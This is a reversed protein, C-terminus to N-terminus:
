PLSFNIDWNSDIIPSNPCFLSNRLSWADNFLQKVKRLLSEMETLTGLLVDDEM